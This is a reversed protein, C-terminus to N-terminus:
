RRAPNRLEMGTHPSKKKCLRLRPSRRGRSYSQRSRLYGACPAGRRVRPPGELGWNALFCDHSGDNTGPPSALVDGGTSTRLAIHGPSLHPGRIARGPDLRSSSSVTYRHQQTSQKSGTTTFGLSPLLQLSLTYYHLRGQTRDGTTHIHM